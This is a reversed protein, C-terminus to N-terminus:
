PHCGCLRLTTMRAGQETMRGRPWQTMNAALDQGTRRTRRGVTGGSPVRRVCAPPRPM